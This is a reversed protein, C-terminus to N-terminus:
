QHLTFHPRHITMHIHFTYSKKDKRGCLPTEYLKSLLIPSPLRLHLALVIGTMIICAFPSLFIYGFMINQMNKNNELSSQTPGTSLM